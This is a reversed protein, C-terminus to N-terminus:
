QKVEGSHQLVCRYLYCASTSCFIIKIHCTIQHFYRLILLGVVTLTV